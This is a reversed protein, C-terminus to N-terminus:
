LMDPLTPLVFSGDAEQQLPAVTVVADLNLPGYIHPFQEVDDAGEHTGKEYRVDADVRAPDIVLLVLDPVHRYFRQAVGLVQHAFSAHIFGATDLTDGRYMGQQQAAQWAAETTIHLLITM